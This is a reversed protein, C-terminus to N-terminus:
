ACLNHISDKTFGRARGGQLNALQWLFMRIGEINWVWTMILTEKQVEIKFGCLNKWKQPMSNTMKEKM